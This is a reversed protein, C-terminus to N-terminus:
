IKEKCIYLNTETNIRIIDGENIFSPVNIQLGTETIAKKMSNQISKGVAKPECKIIKFSIFNPLLVDLVFTEYIKLQIDINKKLFYVKDSLRENDVTMRENNELDIFFCSKQNKYIFEVDKYIINASELKEGSRFNQSIVLKNILNRIKTRVISAGKGPKYYDLEVIEFPKNKFIIKMGKHLDSTNYFM